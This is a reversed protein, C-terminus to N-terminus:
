PSFGVDLAPHPTKPNTIRYFRANFVPAQPLYIPHITGAASRYCETQQLNYFCEQMWM